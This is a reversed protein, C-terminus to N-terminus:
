MAGQTIVYEVVESLSTFRHLENKHMFSLSDKDGFVALVDLKSEVLGFASDQWDEPETITPNYKKHIRMIKDVTM